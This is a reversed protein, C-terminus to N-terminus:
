CGTYSADKRQRLQANCCYAVIYGNAQLKKLFKEIKANKM